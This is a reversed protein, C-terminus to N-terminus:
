GQWCLRACVSLPVGLGTQLFIPGATCLAGEGRKRQSTQPVVESSKNGGIAFFQVALEAEEVHRQTEHKERAGDKM